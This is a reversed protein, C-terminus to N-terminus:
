NWVIEPGKVSLASKIFVQLMLLRGTDYRIQEIDGPNINKAHIISSILLSKPIAWDV